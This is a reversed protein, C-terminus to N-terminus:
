SNSISGASAAAGDDLHLVRERRAGPGAEKIEIQMTAAAGAKIEFRFERSKCCRAMSHGPSVFPCTHARLARARAIHQFWEGADRHVDKHLM